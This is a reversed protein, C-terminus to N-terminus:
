FCTGCNGNPKDGGVGSYPVMAGTYTTPVSAGRSLIPADLPLPATTAVPPEQETRTVTVLVCAAPRAPQTVWGPTDAPAPPRYAVCVGYQGPRAPLAAAGFTMRTPQWQGVPPPFLRINWDRITGLSTYQDFVAIGFGARNASTPPECDTATGTVTFHDLEPEYTVASLSAEVCQAVSWPKTVPDVAAAPGAPAVALLAVGVAAATAFSRPSKM